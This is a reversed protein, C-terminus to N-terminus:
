KIDEELDRVVKKLLEIDLLVCGEEYTEDEFYFAVREGVLQFYNIRSLITLENRSKYSVRIGVDNASNVQIANDM